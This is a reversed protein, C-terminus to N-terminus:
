LNGHSRFYKYFSRTNVGYIGLSESVSKVVKQVAYATLPKKSIEDKGLHNGTFMYAGRKSCHKNFIAKKLEENIYHRVRRGSKPLYEEIYYGESDNKIDELKLNLVTKLRLGSQSIISLILYIKYWKWHDIDNDYWRFEDMIEGYEEDTLERVYSM